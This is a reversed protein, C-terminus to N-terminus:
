SDHKTYNTHVHFFIIYSLQYVVIINTFNIAVCLDLHYGVRILCSLTCLPDSRTCTVSNM